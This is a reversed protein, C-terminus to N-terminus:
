RQEVFRRFAGYLCVWYTRFFICMQRIKLKVANKNCCRVITRSFPSLIRKKTHFSISSISYTFPNLHHLNKKYQNSFFFLCRHICFHLKIKISEIQMYFNKLINSPFQVFERHSKKISFLSVFFVLWCCPGTISFPISCLCLLIRSAKRESSKKM